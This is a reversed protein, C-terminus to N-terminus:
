YPWSGPVAAMAMVHDAKAAASEGLGKEAAGCVRIMMPVEVMKVGIEEEWAGVVVMEM